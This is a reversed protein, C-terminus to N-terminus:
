KQCIPESLQPTHSTPAKDLPKSLPRTSSLFMQVLIAAASISAQCSRRFSSTWPPSVKSSVQCRLTLVTVLSWWQNAIENPVAVSKEQCEKCRYVLPSFKIFETFWDVKSKLPEHGADKFLKLLCAPHVAENCSLCGIVYQGAKSCLSCAISAHQQQSAQSGVNLEVQTTM